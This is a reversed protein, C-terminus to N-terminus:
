FISLKDLMKHTFFPSFPSPYVLYQKLPLALLKCVSGPGGSSLTICRAPSTRAPPPATMGHALSGNPPPSSFPPCARGTSTLDDPTPVHDGNILLPNSSRLTTTSPDCSATPRRPSANAPYSGSITIMVVVVLLRDFDSPPFALSFVRKELRFARDTGTTTCWYSDPQRRFM